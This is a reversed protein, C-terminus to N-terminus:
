ANGKELLYVTGRDECEKKRKQESLARDEASGARYYNIFLFKRRQVLVGSVQRLYEDWNRPIYLPIDKSRTRKLFSELHTEVDVLDKDTPTWYGSIDDPPRYSVEEILHQAKKKPFIATREKPVLSIEANASAAIAVFIFIGFIKM